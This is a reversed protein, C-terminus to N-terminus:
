SENCYSLVSRRLVLVIKSIWIYVYWISRVVEFYINHPYLMSTYRRRDVLYRKRRRKGGPIVATHWTGPEVATISCSYDYTCCHWICIGTRRYSYICYFWYTKAISGDGAPHQHCQQTKVEEAAVDTDHGRASSTVRFVHPVLTQCKDREPRKKQM